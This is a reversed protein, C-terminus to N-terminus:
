PVHTYIATHYIGEYNCLAQTHTHTQTHTKTHTHKQTHTHTHTSANVQKSGRIFYSVM